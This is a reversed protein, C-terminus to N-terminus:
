LLASQDLQSIAAPWSPALLMRICQEDAEQKCLRGWGHGSCLTHLMALTHRVPLLRWCCQHVVHEAIDRWPLLFKMQRQMSLIDVHMDICLCQM